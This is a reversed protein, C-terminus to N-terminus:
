PSATPQRVPVLDVLRPRYADNIMVKAVVQGSRVTRLPSTEPVYFREIGYVIEGRAQEAGLEGAIWQGGPAPAPREAQCAVATSLVVPGETTAATAGRPELRVYVTTARGADRLTACGAADSLAIQYRLAVFHGSLLDRPDVPVTELWLVHADRHSTLLYGGWAAFFALQV